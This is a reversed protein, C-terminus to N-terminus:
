RGGEEPILWPSGAWYWQSPKLTEIHGDVFSVNSRGEHRPSPGGWSSDDPDSASASAAVDSSPDSLIWCGGKIPSDATVCALPDDTNAAVTGSDTLYVTASPNRVDTDKIPPIEWNDKWWCGGLFINASFNLVTGDSAWIVEGDPTVPFPGGPAPTANRVKIPCLPPNTSSIYYSKIHGFWPVRNNQDADVTFTPAFFSDNDDQYLKAAMGAQRMNNLCAV